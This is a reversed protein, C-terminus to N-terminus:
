ADATIQFLETIFGFFCQSIGGLNQDLFIQFAPFLDLVFYNAITKVVAQRDAIHFIHIRHANMGAFADHYRGALCKGIAFAM